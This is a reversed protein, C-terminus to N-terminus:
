RSGEPAKYVVIRAPKTAADVAVGIGTGVGVASPLAKTADFETWSRGVLALVGLVAAGIVAGIMAGDGLGDKARTTIRQIDVKPIVARAAHTEIGVDSETLGEFDGEIQDGNKLEVTIPTGLNLGSAKQWRGPIVQAHVPMSILGALMLSVFQIRDSKMPQSMM